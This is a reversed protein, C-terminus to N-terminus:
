EKIDAHTNTCQHQMPAGYVLTLEQYPGGDVQLVALPTTTITSYAVTPWTMNPTKSLLGISYSMQKDKKVLVQKVACRCPRHVSVTKDHGRWTTPVSWHVFLSRSAMPCHIPHINHWTHQWPSKLAPIPSPIPIHQTTKPGTDISESSLREGTCGVPLTTAHTSHQM